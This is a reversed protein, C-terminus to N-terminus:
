IQITRNSHIIEQKDSNQCSNILINKTIKVIYCTRPKYNNECISCLYYLILLM